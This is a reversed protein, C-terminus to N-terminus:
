SLLLLVVSSGGTLQHSQRYQRRRPQHRCQHHDRVNSCHWLDEQSYPSGWMMMGGINLHEWKANAGEESEVDGEFATVAPLAIGVTVTAISPGNISGSM